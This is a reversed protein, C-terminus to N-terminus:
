SKTALDSQERRTLEALGERVLKCTEPPMREASGFKTFKRDIAAKLQETTAKEPQMLSVCM